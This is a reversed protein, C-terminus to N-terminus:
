KRDDRDHDDDHDRRPASYGNRYADNYGDAFGRRYEDRVRDDVRPHRFEGHRRPDPSRRDNIDRYAAQMGDQHGLQRVDYYGVGRDGYGIPPAGAQPPGYGGGYRDDHGCGAFLLPIALFSVAAFKHM